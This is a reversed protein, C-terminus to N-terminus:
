KNLEEIWLDDIDDWYDYGEPSTAWGFATSVYTPIGMGNVTEMHEIMSEHGLNM